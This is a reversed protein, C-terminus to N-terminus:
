GGFGTNSLEFGLHLVAEKTSDKKRPTEQTKKM